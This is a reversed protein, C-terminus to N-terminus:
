GVESEARSHEVAADVVDALSESLFHGEIKRIFHQEIEATNVYFLKVLILVYVHKRRESVDVLLERYTEDGIRLFIHEAFSLSLFEDFFKLIEAHVYLLMVAGLEKVVM